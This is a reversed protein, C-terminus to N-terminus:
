ELQSAADVSRTGLSCFRENWERWHTLEGSSVPPEEWAGSVNIHNAGGEGPEADGVNGLAWDGEDKNVTANTLVGNGQGIASDCAHSESSGYRGLWGGRRWNGKGIV